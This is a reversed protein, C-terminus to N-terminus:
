DEWYYGVCEFVTPNAKFIRDLDSPSPQKPTLGSARQIESIYDIRVQESCFTQWPNQIFKLHLFQGFIGLWDYTKKYWPLALRSTVASYISNKESETLDKIRWFKLMQSPKMFDSIKVERFTGFGQSAAFGQKHLVFAHNYNGHEHAKIGWGLFGTRDDSLCILPLDSEDFKTPDIFIRGDKIEDM